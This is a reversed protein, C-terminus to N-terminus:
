ASGGVIIVDYDVASGASNLVQLKDDTGAAATYGVPDAILVAFAGPGVAITDTPDGFPGQFDNAAAGGITITQTTSPNNFILLKVKIYTLTTGFADTLTGCLDLEENAGAGLTRTDHFLLDAKGSGTGDTLALTFTQILRDVITNLDKAVTHNADIKFTASTVLTM